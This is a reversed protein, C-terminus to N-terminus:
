AEKYIEVIAFYLVNGFNHREGFGSSAVTNACYHEISYANSGSPTIRAAGHSRSTTIGGSDDEAFEASGYEIAATGTVDYLRTQHSQVQFGSGSWRVMYSGAALTFENSSISVIGDPDTIEHNLDRTRWAGSTFTGSHTNAAKQDAIIAYSAFLGGGAAEFAPPAGAGASTLVEGDDGTAIAVPNGSADYSIINGDTGGAMKALTIANDEVTDVTNTSSLHWVRIEASSDPAASFTLINTGISWAGTPHQVVGDVTVILADSNPPQRGLTFAVTSGNGTFSDMLVTGLKGPDNGLYPM